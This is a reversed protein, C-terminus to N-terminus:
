PFFNWHAGWRKHSHSLLSHCSQKKQKTKNQKTKNQKTKNQKTKNQKTKNTTKKNTLFFYHYIFHEFLVLFFFIYIFRFDDLEVETREGSALFMLTYLAVEFEPSVGQFLFFFFTLM